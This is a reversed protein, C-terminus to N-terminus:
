DADPPGVPCEARALALARRAAAPWTRGEAQVRVGINTMTQRSFIEGTAVFPGGAQAQSITVGYHEDIDHTV